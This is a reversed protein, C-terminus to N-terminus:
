KGDSGIVEWWRGGGAREGRERQNKLDEAPQGRQKLEMRM